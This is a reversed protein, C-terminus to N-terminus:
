DRITSNFLWAPAFALTETAQQLEDVNFLSRHLSRNRLQMRDAHISISNAKSESCLTFSTCLSARFVDSSVGKKNWHQM